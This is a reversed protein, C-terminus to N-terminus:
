HILTHEWISVYFKEIEKKSTNFVKKLIQANMVCKKVSTCRSAEM